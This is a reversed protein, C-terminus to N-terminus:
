SESILTSSEESSEEKSEKEEKVEEEQKGHVAEAVGEEDKVDGVRPVRELVETVRFYKNKSLPRCESVIVTDGEQLDEIGKSDAMFKSSRRFRKKYIPHFVARHEIVTVTDIMKASVVTCKKTRM